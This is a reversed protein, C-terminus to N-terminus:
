AGEGRENKYSVETWIHRYYLADRLYIFTSVLQQGIRRTERWLKATFRRNAVSVAIGDLGFKNHWELEIRRSRELEIDSRSVGELDHRGALDAPICLAPVCQRCDVEHFLPYRPDLFLDDVPQDFFRPDDLLRHAASASLIYAGLGWQLTYPRRLNVGCEFRTTVPGLRVRQFRTELRIFDCEPPSTALEDLFAPLRESLVVDDELFVGHTLGLQLMRRWAKRHSLACAVEPQTLPSREAWALELDDGASAVQDSSIANIREAVLGVRSLEAEIFARRDPRSDLNVFFIKM